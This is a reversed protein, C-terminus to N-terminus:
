LEGLKGAFIENIADEYIPDSRKTRLWKMSPDYSGAEVDQLISKLDDPQDKWPGFNPTKVSGVPGAVNPTSTPGMAWNDLNSKIYDSMKTDLFEDVERPDNANKYLTSIADDGFDARIMDKISTNAINDQLERTALWFNDPKTRILQDLRNMADYSIDEEDILKAVDTPDSIQDFIERNLYPFYNSDTFNRIVGLKDALSFGQKAVTPAISAVEDVLSKGLLPEDLAKAALKGLRPIQSALAMAGGIAAGQKVFNRRSPSTMGKSLQNLISEGGRKALKTGLQVPAYYAGVQSATLADMAARVKGSTFAKGTPDTRNPRDFGEQALRDMADATEHGGTLFYPIFPIIDAPSGMKGGADVLRDAISRQVPAV